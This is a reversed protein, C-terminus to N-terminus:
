NLLKTSFHQPARRELWGWEKRNTKELQKSAIAAVDVADKEGLPRNLIRYQSTRTSRIKEKKLQQCVAVKAPTLSFGIGPLLPYVQDPSLLSVITSSCSLLRNSGRQLKPWMCIFQLEKIWHRLKWACCPPFTITLTIHLDGFGSRVGSLALRIMIFTEQALPPPLFLSLVSVSSFFLLNFPPFLYLSYADTEWSNWLPIRAFLSVRGLM